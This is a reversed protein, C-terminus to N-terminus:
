GLAWDLLVVVAAAASVVLVAARTRGRDLVAALPRSCWFGAVTGPVLLLGDVADDGDFQGGVALALISFAIGVVFYRAMTARLVPGSARQYVLALPPGGVAVTTAMFGSAAGAGVLTPPTPVLDWRLATLAVGVLLMVGFLLGFQDTPVLALAVVGLVTGPVRGALAWATERLDGEERERRTMFLNLVLASVLAPGPVLGPDVLVLVPVALLNAGFGVAGQLACGVGIAITVVVLEGGTV